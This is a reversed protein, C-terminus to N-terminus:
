QKIRDIFSLLIERVQYFAQISFKKQTLIKLWYTEKIGPFVHELSLIADFGGWLRLDRPWELMQAITMLSSNLPHYVEEIPYTAHVFIGHSNLEQFWKMEEQIVVEIYETREKLTMVSKLFNYYESLIIGFHDIHIDDDGIPITYSIVCTPITRNRSSAQRYLNIVEDAFAEFSDRDSIWDLVEMEQYIEPYDRKVLGLIANYGLFSCVIALSVPDYEEYDRTLEFFDIIFTDVARVSRNIVLEYSTEFYFMM